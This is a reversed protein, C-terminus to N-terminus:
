EIKFSEFDVYSNNGSSFIGVKAGIWTGPTAVFLQGLSSFARGDTSYSFLCKAEQKVEVRLWIPGESGVITECIIERNNNSPHSRSIQELLLVGECRRITLCAYSSGLVVLGASVDHDLRPLEVLTTASFDPAPFKQLLLHPALAMNHDRAPQAFLRLWGPRANLSYWDDRHNANWQWQLGLTSSNFDDSTQPVIPPSDISISPKIHERVPEGIGTHHQNNGILPWGDRWVVPQLHTVRGYAGHDQFHIFWSQDDSTDVIAGQHPGNVSTNGQTLVIKDKYPGYINRSRLVTQWGTAVGGAPASIYYWGDRKLFKPGEITPHKRPDEFVIQGEGLLRSGNPALPCIRLRDKLGCRSHAYAHVLYAQGDDDWLPCPDILGQGAQLLHPESWKGAPDDATTVYIGEDPMAFFIWFKGEHFRMAPAWIGCGPQVQEYRLNPLNKVAHNILQWNVLDRSHLIPLGPTCNFSSATMYFDNGHRIVDPDSYDAHIIPNCYCGNGLDSIWPRDVLEGSLPHAATTSNRLTTNIALNM